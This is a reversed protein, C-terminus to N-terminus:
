RPWERNYLWVRLTISIEITHSMTKSNCECVLWCKVDDHRTLILKQWATKTMANHEKDGVDDTLRAFKDGLQAACVHQKALMYRYLCTNLLFVWLKRM